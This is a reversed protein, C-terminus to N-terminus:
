KSYLMTSAEQLLEKPDVGNMSLQKVAVAIGKWEARFVQGFAGQGIETLKSLSEYLILSRADSEMTKLRSGAKTPAEILQLWTM